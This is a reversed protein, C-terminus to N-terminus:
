RPESRRVPLASLMTRRLAEMDQDLARSEPPSLGLASAVDQSLPRIPQVLPAARPASVLRAADDGLPGPDDADVPQLVVPVGPKPPGVAHTTWMVVGSLVLLFAVGAGVRTLGAMWVEGASPAHPRTNELAHAIRGHLAEPMPERPVQDGASLLAHIVAQDRDASGAKRADLVRTSRLMSIFSLM